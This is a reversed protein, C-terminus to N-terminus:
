NQIIAAFNASSGSQNILTIASAKETFIIAKHAGTGDQFILAESGGASGGHNIFALQNTYDKLGIVGELSLGTTSGAVTIIDDNLAALDADNDGAFSSFTALVALAAIFKSTFKM